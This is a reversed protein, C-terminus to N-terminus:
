HVACFSRSIRASNMEFVFSSRVSTLRMRAEIRSAPGSSARHPCTVTGGGPPSTM